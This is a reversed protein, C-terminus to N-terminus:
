CKSKQHSIVVTTMEVIWDVIGTSVTGGFTTYPFLAYKSAVEPQFHDDNSTCM